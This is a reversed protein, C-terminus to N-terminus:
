GTDITYVAEDVEAAEGGNVLTVGGSADLREIAKGIRPM